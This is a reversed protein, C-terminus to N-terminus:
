FQIPTTEPVLVFAQLVHRVHLWAAAALAGGWRAAELQDRLDREAQQAACRVRGHLELDSELSSTHSELSQPRPRSLLVAHIAHSLSCTYAYRRSGAHGTCTVTTNYLGGGFLSFEAASNGDQSAAGSCRCANGAASAACHGPHQM